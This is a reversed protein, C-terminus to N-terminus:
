KSSNTNTVLDAVNFFLEEWMKDIVTGTRNGLMVIGIDKEPFYYMEALYGSIEGSHGILPGAGSIYDPYIFIGLGGGDAIPDITLMERLTNPKLLKGEHLLARIFTMMDQTNSVIGGDPLGYGQNINTYDILRKKRGLIYGHALPTIVPDAYDNYTNSLGLPEFIRSRLAKQFPANTIKEVIVALLIFNTNSYSSNSGPPTFDAKKGYAFKLAEEPTYLKNPHTIADENFTYDFYDYIGSTHNLLQRITTQDANKINQVDEPSIYKAIKDDLSLKGEEFLQMVVVALFPKSCSAIRFHTDSTMSIKPKLALQGSTLQIVGCTPSFVELSVGPLGNSVSKNLQKQLSENLSQCKNNESSQAYTIYTKKSLCNVSNLWIFIVTTILFLLLSFNKIKIKYKAKM